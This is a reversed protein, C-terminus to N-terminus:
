DLLELSFPNGGNYLMWSNWYFIPILGESFIGGNYMM